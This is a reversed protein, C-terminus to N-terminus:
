WDLGVGTFWESFYVVEPRRRIIRPQLSFAFALQEVAQPHRRWLLGFIQALRTDRKVVWAVHERDAEAGSGKVMEIDLCPEDQLVEFAERALSEYGRHVHELGACALMVRVVRRDGNVQQAVESM